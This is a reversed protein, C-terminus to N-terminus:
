GNEGDQGAAGPPGPLGQPGQPGQPGVVNWRVRVERRRCPEDASVVRFTRSEDNDRDLRLCAHIEGNSPIQAQVTAPVAGLILAAAVASPSVLVLGLSRGRGM